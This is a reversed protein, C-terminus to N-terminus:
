TEEARDYAVRTTTPQWRSLGTGVVSKGRLWRGHVSPPSSWAHVFILFQQGVEAGILIRELIFDDIADLALVARSCHMSEHILQRGSHPLHDLQGVPIPQRLCLHSPTKPDCIGGHGTRQLPSVVSSADHERSQTRRCRRCLNTTSSSPMAVD